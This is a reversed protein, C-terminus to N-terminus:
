GVVAWLRWNGPSSWANSIKKQNHRLTEGGDRLIHCKKGSLNGARIRFFLVANDLATGVTRFCLVFIRYTHVHYVLAPDFHNVGALLEDIM